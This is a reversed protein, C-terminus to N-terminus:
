KAAAAQLADRNLAALAILAAPLPVGAKRMKQVEEQCGVLNNQQALGQAQELTLSPKPPPPAAPAAPAAAPAAPAAGPAPPPKPTLFAVVEHCLAGPGTAAVPTPAPEATKVQDKPQTPAAPLQPSQATGGQNSSPQQAPQAAQDAPPQAPAQAAPPTAPQAAAPPSGPQATAPQSSDTTQGTAASALVSAGLLLPLVLARM